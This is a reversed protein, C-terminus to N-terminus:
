VQVPNIIGNKDAAGTIPSFNNTFGLGTGTSIWIGTAAALSWFYNDYASGSWGTGTTSIGVPIAASTNKRTFRNRAIDVATLSSNGTDLLCPGQTGATIPSVGRNDAIAWRDQDSNNGVALIVTPSVTGLGFVTNNTFSFGDATSPLGSGVNFCRLFSLVSTLDRFECNNIAFDSAIFRLTTSAVTQSINVTYTGVGGTTGTLQNLIITGPLVLGTTSFVAQGPTVTGTLTAAVTLVNGSISAATSQARSATFAATISLFNAVFVCNQISMNAALVPINATVATTYTFTPRFTGSGLGVVAVGACNMILTTANAITETHGPLVFIIDGRGQVCAQSVAFNLTAFPDLFTGRNGDSAGKQGPNLIPSNGVFFIQGPQAQLLPVGRVSVGNAFGQPFNTFPM